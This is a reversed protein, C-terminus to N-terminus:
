ERRHARIARDVKAAFRQAQSPAFDEMPHRENVEVDAFVDHGARDELVLRGDRVYARRLASLRYAIGHDLLSSVGARVVAALIRGGASSTRDDTSEDRVERLGRDTLQLVVSTDLLLLAVRRDRTRIAADAGEEWQRPVIWAASDPADAHISLGRKTAGQAALSTPAAVALTLAAALVLRHRCDPM